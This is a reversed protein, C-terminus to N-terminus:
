EFDARCAEPQRPCAAPTFGDLTKLRASRTVSMSRRRDSILPMSALNRYPRFISSRMEDNQRGKGTIRFNLPRKLSSSASVNQLRHRRIFQHIYNPLDMSSLLPNRGLYRRIQSVVVTIFLKSRTFHVDQTLKGPFRLRSMASFSKIASSATFACRLCMMSFSWAFSRVCATEIPTRRPIM